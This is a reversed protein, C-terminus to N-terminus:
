KTILMFIQMNIKAKIVALAGIQYLPKVMLEGQKEHNTIAFIHIDSSQNTPKRTKVIVFWLYCHSSITLDKYWIPASEM